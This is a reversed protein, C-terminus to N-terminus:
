QKHNIPSKICWQCDDTGAVRAPVVALPHKCGKDASVGLGKTTRSGNKLGKKGHRFGPDRNWGGGLWRPM